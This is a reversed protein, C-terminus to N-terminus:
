RPSTKFTVTRASVPLHSNKFPTFPLVPWLGGSGCKVLPLAQLSLKRNTVSEVPYFLGFPSKELGHNRAHNM